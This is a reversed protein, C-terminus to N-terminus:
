KEKFVKQFLTFIKKVVLFKLMANWMKTPSEIPVLINYKGNDFVERLGYPCDTSIVSVGNAIVLVGLPKMNIPKGEM